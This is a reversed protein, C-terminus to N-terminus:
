LDIGETNKLIYGVIRQRFYEKLEGSRIAEFAYDKWNFYTYAKFYAWGSDRTANSNSIFEQLRQDANETYIGYILGRLNKQWFEFVIKHDRWKPNQFTFSIPVDIVNINTNEYILGNEQALEKLQPVFENELIEQKQQYSLTDKDLQEIWHLQSPIENQLFDRWKSQSFGMGCHKIFCLKLNKSDYQISGIRPSVNSIPDFLQLPAYPINMASMSIEYFKSATVGIFICIDPKLVEIIKPFIEWGNNFDEENPRDKPDCMARQVFNYYAINDWLVPDNGEENKLLFTINKFTQTIGDNCYLEEEITERTANKDNYGEGYHSEGIILVKYQGKLYERGVWPFWALGEIKDFLLNFNEESLIELM